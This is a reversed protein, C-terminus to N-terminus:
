AKNLYSMPVYVYRIFRGVFFSAQVIEFSAINKEYPIQAWTEGELVNVGELVSYSKVFAVPVVGKISAKQEGFARAKMRGVRYRHFSAIDEKEGGGSVEDLAADDLELKEIERDSKNNKM